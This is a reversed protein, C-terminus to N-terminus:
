KLFGIIVLVLWGKPQESEAMEKQIEELASSSLFAKEVAGEESSESSM